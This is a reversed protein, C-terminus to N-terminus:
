CCFFFCLICKRYSSTGLKSNPLLQLIEQESMILYKLVRTFGQRGELARKIEAIVNTTSDPSACGTDENSVVDSDRNNQPNFSNFINDQLKGNKKNGNNLQQYLDYFTEGITESTPPKSIKFHRQQGSAKNAVVSITAYDTPKQNQADQKKSFEVLYALPSKSISASLTVGITASGVALLLLWSTVPFPM